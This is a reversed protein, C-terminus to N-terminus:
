PCPSSTDLLDRPDPISGSNGYSGVGCSNSARVLYYTLRSGDTPPTARTDEFASTTVANALCNAGQYGQDTQLREGFGTIVDYTTGPGATAAQGAWAVLVGSANTTVSLNTGETVFGFSGSDADNCDGSTAVYGGPATCSSATVNSNGYGDGDADQYWTTARCQSVLRITAWGFFPYNGSLLTADQVYIDFHGNTVNFTGLLYEAHQETPGGDGGVTDVFSATPAQPTYGYFYRMNRGPDNTYLKAYVQYTGNAIGSDYFHMVPLGFAAEGAAAFVSPYGRPPYLFETWRGDNPILQSADSTTALVPSQHNDEWCNILITGTRAALVDFTNSRGTISGSTATITVGNMVQGISVDGSWVGAVFPGPSTPALTGTTDSLQVAGPNGAFVNGHQDRATIRITFTTGAYQPTPIPDLDFHDLVPVYVNVSAHGTVGGTQASVANSYLGAVGAATFRGNQDITGGASASWTFVLGNIPVNQTDYGQASFQTSGSVPAQGPNPTVTVHDLAGALQILRLSAWGFYPDSGSLQQADQVYLNFEGDSISVSGLVYEAFGESGGAGGVTDKSFATPAGPTFGYFYRMDRGASDTYLKARVEYIANQLGSAHFRMVPLGLSAEGVAAFVAPYNRCPCQYWFETWKGDNSVLDTDRTTTPLYPEQSQDDWCNIDIEGSRPALLAFANSTGNHGADSATITDSASVSGITVNGTWVGAAFSGTATPSITATADQLQAQGTYTDLVRGHQDRAKVTIPFASGAYLTGSMTSFDFGALTPPYVDVTAFGTVAGVTASVANTFTGVTGGATFLGSADITGGGAGWTFTLGPIVAGGIDYGTAVFQQTKGPPVTGLAPTVTIHDLTGPLTAVVQTSGSFAPVDVLVPGIQGATEVFAHFKTLLDTSGSVSTTLVRTAPDYTSSAINSTKLARVYQCAYDLTVYTPTYPKLADTIGKIEADWNAPTISQVAYEHTFLTSLFMGDLARETQRKGRGVTGPVDNDPYWEYSADDRIETVCDFFANDLEPHGPIPLFDAYYVPQNSAFQDAPGSEFLRYPGLQLWPSGVYVQNPQMHIGVFQVGWQQLRPFANAGMEYWHSLVYKSIPIAHQTHWATADDFNANVVADSFPVGGYHDFFFFDGETGGSAGKAHVSATGLGANVVSSIKQADSELIDKYFLGLWPKFGYSNVTDLWWFGGHVDDVRMTVLNPMGQMVFPKRAAWVLGRWVLGDFEHVPGKIATSMWEYSAWQVARGSGYTTTMLIPQALIAIRALNQVNGPLVVGASTLTRTNIVQGGVFRSTIYNSPANNSLLVNQSTQRPIYSFGFITQVFQYRPTSGDPSLDGDFNVLGTGKHVATSINAQESGSLYTGGVDLQKHGVIILAYDGISSTVPTVAIDLVTYPVGFQDLYPRIYHQADAYSASASNVLLVVDTRQAGIAGTPACLLSLAALALFLKTWSM